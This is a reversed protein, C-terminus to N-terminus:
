SYREVVGDAVLELVELQRPPLSPLKRKAEAVLELAHQRAVPLAGTAGLRECVDLAQAPTRVRRLDLAALEPDRERALILPLTVTGDLLDTGRPKGTREPPGTIDLVDDLIQFAIGIREGFSGLARAAGGGEIAGLECAARFLVGTKLRCRELYRALDVDPSWADARQMLEGRALASSARSLSRVAPASGGGALEAFARAFLLDGTATAQERGGAAMVSPRGRRLAARDLVDDHVLSASHVLEVAVAARVLGDTEPPPVGATLFVLLPRLRKGGAAITEGAHRVLEPGYGTTIAAMRQELREMLRSVGAGGADLVSQVASM